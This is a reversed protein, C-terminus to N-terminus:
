INMHDLKINEDLFLM